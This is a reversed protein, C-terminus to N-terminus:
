LYGNEVCWFCEEVDWRAWTDKVCQCRGVAEFDHKGKLDIMCRGSASRTTPFFWGLGQEFM